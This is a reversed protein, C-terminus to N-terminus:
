GTFFQFSPIASSRMLYLTSSVNSCIISPVKVKTTSAESKVVVQPKVTTATTTGVPATTVLKGQISLNKSALQAQIQRFQEQSLLIPRGEKTQLLVKPQGAGVTSLSGTNANQVIVVKQTTVSKQDSKQVSTTQGGAPITIQTVQGTSPISVLKKTSPLTLNAVSTAAPKAIQTTKNMPGKQLQSVNTVAAKPVQNIITPKQLQGITLSPKQNTNLTGKQLQTVTQLQNVTGKHLQGVTAAPKQLQTVTKVPTANSISVTNGTVAQQRTNATMAAQRMNLQKLQQAVIPNKELFQQLQKTNIAEKLQSALNATSQSLAIQTKDQQLVTSSNSSPLKMQLLAMNQQQQQTPTHQQQQTQTLQQQQQQQTRVQLAQQVLQNQQLLKKLQNQQLVSQQKSLNEQSLNSGSSQQALLSQVLQLQTQDQILKAKGTQSTSVQEPKPAIQKPQLQVLNALGSKSANIPQNTIGQKLQPVTLIQKTLQGKPGITYTNQLTQKPRVTANGSNMQSNLGSVSANPQAVVIKPRIAVLQPQAKIPTTKLGQTLVSGQISIQSNNQGAPTVSTNQPRPAINKPRLVPLSLPSATTGAHPSTVLRPPTLKQNVNQKPSVSAPKEASTLSISGTSLLNRAKSASLDISRTGTSSSLGNNGPFNGLSSGANQQFAFHALHQTPEQICGGSTSQTSPQQNNSTQSDKRSVDNTTQPKQSIFYLLKYIHKNIHMFIITNISVNDTDEALTPVKGEVFAIQNLLIIM